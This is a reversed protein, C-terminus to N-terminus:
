SAEKYAWVRARAGTLDSTVIEPTWGYDQAPLPLAASSVLTETSYALGDLPGGRFLNLLRGTTLWREWTELTPRRCVGGISWNGGGPQVEEDYFEACDCTVSRM